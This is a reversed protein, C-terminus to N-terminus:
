RVRERMERVAAVLESTGIKLKVGKIDLPSKLSDPEPTIRFVHGDRRRIEVAGHLQAEELM